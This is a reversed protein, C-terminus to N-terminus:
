TSDVTRLWRSQDICTLHLAPPLNKPCGAPNTRWPPAPMNRPSRSWLEVTRVSSAAPLTSECGGLESVWLEINLQDDYRAAGLYRLRAEVVPFIADAQQWQEFTRGLHRFFEGRARELIDLYRSYYIHNGVTCEAYSVRYSHIFTKASV